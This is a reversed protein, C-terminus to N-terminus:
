KTNYTDFSEKSKLPIFTTFFQHIQDEIISETYKHTMAQWVKIAFSFSDPTAHNWQTVSDLSPIHYFSTNVEVFDFFKSYYALFQNNHLSKPYFGGKKWDPYAWGACGVRILAM